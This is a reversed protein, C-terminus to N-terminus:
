FYYLHSSLSEWSEIIGPLKLKQELKRIYRGRRIRKITNDEEMAGRHLVVIKWDPKYILDYNHGVLVESSHIGQLLSFIVSLIYSHLVMPVYVTGVMTDIFGLTLHLRKSCTPKCLYAVTFGAAPAATPRRRLSSALPRFLYRQLNVM